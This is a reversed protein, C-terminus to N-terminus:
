RFIGHLCCKQKDYAEYRLCFYGKNILCCVIVAFKKIRSCVTIVCRKMITNGTHQAGYSLFILGTRVRKLRALM